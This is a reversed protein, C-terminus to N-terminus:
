TCLAEAALRSLDGLAGNDHQRLSKGIRFKLLLAPLTVMPTDMFSSVLANLRDDLEDTPERAANYAQWESATKIRKNAEVHADLDFIQPDRCRHAQRAIEYFRCSETSLRDFEVLMLHLTSALALFEAELRSLLWVEFRVVGL